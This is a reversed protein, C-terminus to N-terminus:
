VSVRLLPRGVTDDETAVPRMSLGSGALLMGAAASVWVEGEGAANAIREAHQVGPGDAATTERSLEAISVGLRAASGAKGLASRVATAPGDFTVVRRGSPTTRAVGGCSVLHDVM